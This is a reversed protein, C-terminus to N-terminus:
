NNAESPRRFPWGWVSRRDDPAFVTRSHATGTVVLFGYTGTLGLMLVVAAGQTQPGSQEVPVLGVYFNWLFHTMIALLLGGVLWAPWSAKRGPFVLLGIGYGGVGGMLTHLFLRVAETPVQYWEPGTLSVAYFSEGLGFGLGVFSGYILGDIPDNFFPRCAVAVMVVLLVKGVEECIGTIAAHVVIPPTAYRALFHDEVLGALWYSAVGAAAALTLLIVPERDYMDYRYVMVAIGLACLLLILYVAM